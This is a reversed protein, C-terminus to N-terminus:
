EDEGEKETDVTFGIAQTQQDGQEESETYIKMKMNEIEIIFM